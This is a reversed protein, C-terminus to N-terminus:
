SPYGTSCGNGVYGNGDARVIYRPGAPSNGKQTIRELPVAIARGAHRDAHSEAM